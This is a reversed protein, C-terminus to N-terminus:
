NKSVQALATLGARVSDGVSVLPKIDKKEHKSTIIVNTQSGFRIMGIKQGQYVEQGIDVWCEIRRAFSGTIQLVEIIHNDNELVILNQENKDEAGAFYVSQHKGPKYEIKKVVGSIPSRNIHVDFPSMRVAIKLVLNEASVYRISGDAAALFSSDDTSIMRDPDRFFWVLYLTFGILLLGLYWYFLTLLLSIIVFPLIIRASDQAIM